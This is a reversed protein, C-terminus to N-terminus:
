RRSTLLEAACEIDAILQRWSPLESIPGSWDVRQLLQRRHENFRKAVQERRRGTCDAAKLLSQQLLQKPDPVSEVKRVSPLGLGNRGKPNGAVRRIADEDLLLWAETMRVPIVPVAAAAPLVSTVARTIEDRRQATGANDADRHIVILDVPGDMLEVGARVRSQVDKPVRGLLSYDPRSLRTDAGREIFLTEVIEALPLDSTGECVFLGSYVTHRM